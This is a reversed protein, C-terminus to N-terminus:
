LEGILNVEPDLILTVLETQQEQFDAATQFADEETSTKKYERINHNFFINLRWYVKEQTPKM